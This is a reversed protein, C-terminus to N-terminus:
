LLQLDFLEPERAGYGLEKSAESTGLSTALKKVSIYEWLKLLFIASESPLKSRDVSCGSAHQLADTANYYGSQVGFLGCKNGLNRKLEM